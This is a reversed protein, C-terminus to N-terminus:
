FEKRYNEYYIEDWINEEVKKLLDSSVYCIEYQELDYIKYDKEIIINYFGNNYNECISACIKFFSNKKKVKNRVLYKKNKTSKIKDIVFNTFLLVKELNSFKTNDSNLHKFSNLTNIYVQEKIEDSTSFFVEIPKFKTTQHITNNYNLLIQNNAQLLDFKEGDDIKKSILNIKLTRHLREVCGQSRPNFAKGHIFKINKSILFNKVKRNVFETGNDTGLEEPIGNKEFCEKLCRLITDASKNNLIYSFSYKSFHDILNFQYKYNTKEVLEAPLETLDGIFREFPKTFIIQKTPERKYYERKKQACTVCNQIIKKSDSIIGKYTYGALYFENILKNLSIHSKNIHIDSLLKIYDIKYPIKLLTYDNKQKKLHRNVCQARKVSDVSNSM